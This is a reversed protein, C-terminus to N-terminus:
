PQDGRLTTQLRPDLWDRLYDGLLNVALVALFIALGPFATIWWATGLYLRGGNLMRGWTVIDPEVGLGLFSLTAELIIMNAVAFVAVVIVPSLVNPLVHRALIRADGAGTARAAHVFDCAKVVLTEGRTLRAYLTWGTVSLTLIVNRIGPGLVAVVAIALLITPIALQIETVRMLVDDTRRGAYGAVLGVLVGLPCSLAVAVVGVLLSIRAGYILRSLVDRGVEDTGLPHAGLAPPQLRRAIDQDNVTYPAIWGAFLASILMAGVVVAALWFAAGQRRM